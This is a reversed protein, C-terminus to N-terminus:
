PRQKGYTPVMQIKGIPIPSAGWHILYCFLIDRTRLSLHFGFMELQRGHKFCEQCGKLSWLKDECLVAKIVLAHRTECVLKILLVAFTVETHDQEWKSTCQPFLVIALRVTGGLLAHVVGVSQSSISALHQTQGLLVSSAGSCKLLIVTASQCRSCLKGASASAYRTAGACSCMQMGCWACAM